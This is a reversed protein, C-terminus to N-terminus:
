HAITPGYRGPLKIQEVFVVTVDTLQWYKAVPHIRQIRGCCSPRDGRRPPM